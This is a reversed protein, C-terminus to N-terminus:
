PTLVVGFGKRLQISTFSSKQHAAKLSDEDISKLM